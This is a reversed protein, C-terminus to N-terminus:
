ECQTEERQKQEQAVASIREMRLNDTRLIEHEEPTPYLRGFRSLFPTKILCESYVGKKKKIQKVKEMEPETLDLIDRYRTVDEKQRLLIVIDANQIISQGTEDSIFDRLSQTIAVAAADFKRFERFAQQVGQPDDKLFKWSEDMVIYLVHASGRQSLYETTHSLLSIAAEKKENLPLESLEIGALVGVQDLRAFLKPIESKLEDLSHPELYMGANANVLRKFSRKHDMFLVSIKRKAKIMRWLVLGVLFSKGTGTAGSVLWHLADLRSDQPDFYLPKGRLTKLIAAGEEFPDLIHPCLDTATAVRVFHGRHFRERLGYAALLTLTPNKEFLFYHSDLPLKEHSVLVLSMEVVCDDGKSLGRLVHSAEEFSVDTDVQGIDNLHANMKRASEIRSKIASQDLGRYSAIVTFNQQLDRLQAFLWLPDTTVPVQQLSYVYPDQVGSLYICCVELDQANGIREWKESAIVEVLRAGKEDVRCELILSQDTQLHKLEEELLQKSSMLDLDDLTDPPIVELETPKETVRGLLGWRNSFLRELYFLPAQDWGPKAYTSFVRLLGYLIISLGLGVLSRVTEGHALLQLFVTLFSLILLGVFPIGFILPQRLLHRCSPEAFQRM